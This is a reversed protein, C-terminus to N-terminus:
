AIIFDVLFLFYNYNMVNRRSNIKFLVINLKLILNIICSAM